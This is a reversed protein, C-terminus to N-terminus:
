SKNLISQSVRMMSGSEITKMLPLLYLMVTWGSWIRFTKKDDPVSKASLIRFAIVGGIALPIVYGIAGLKWFAPCFFSWFLTTFAITWRALEDGVVLPVTKRSRARDGVQDEMDQMHVTTFIIAAVICFWRRGPDNLSFEVPGFAIATAGYGYSIYGAANFFNRMVFSKNAGGLENYCWGLFILTICPMLNSMVVSTIVAILYLVIMALKAERQTCRHSPLPRWPKNMQDERISGPRRQNDIDMPLLNIWVWFAVLPIRRFIHLADLTENTIVSASFATFVGFFTM